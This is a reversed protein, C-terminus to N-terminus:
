PGVIAALDDRPSGYTPVGLFIAPDGNTPTAWVHLYDVGTGRPAALDLAWGGIATVIRWRDFGSRANHAYVAITYRAPALGTVQLNFGSNTFQSGFAAGM